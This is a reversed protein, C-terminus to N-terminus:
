LWEEPISELVPRWAASASASTDARIRKLESIAEQAASAQSHSSTAQQSRRFEAVVQEATRDGHTTFSILRAAEARTLVVRVRVVRRSHGNRSPGRGSRTRPTAGQDDPASATERRAAAAKVTRNSWHPRKTARHLTESLFKM